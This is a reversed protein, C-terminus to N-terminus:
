SSNFGPYAANGAIKGGTELRGLLFQFRFQAVCQTGNPVTELRGLLFQFGMLPVWSPM